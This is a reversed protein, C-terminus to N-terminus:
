RMILMTRYEKTNEECKGAIGVNQSLYSCDIKFSSGIAGEISWGIHLGFGMKVCYPANPKSLRDCM